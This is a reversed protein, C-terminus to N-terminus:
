NRFGDAQKRTSIQDQLVQKVIASVDDTGKLLGFDQFQQLLELTNSPANQIAEDKALLTGTQDVQIGLQKNLQNIGEQRKAFFETQDQFNQLEAGGLVDPAQLNNVDGTYTNILNTEALARNKAKALRLQQERPDDAFEKTIREFELQSSRASEALQQANELKALQTLNPATSGAGIGRIQAPLGFRGTQRTAQASSSRDINEFANGPKINELADQSVLGLRQRLGRQAAAVNDNVTNRANEIRQDEDRLNAQVSENFGGASAADRRRQLLEEVQAARDEEVTFDPPPNDYPSTNPVNSEEVFAFGAGPDLNQDALTADLQANAANFGLPDATPDAIGLRALTADLQANAANVGLPDAPPAQPTAPPEVGAVGAAFDVVPNRGSLGSNIEDIAAENRQDAASLAGALSSGVNRVTDVAGRGADIVDRGRNVITDIVPDAANAVGERLSAGADFAQSSAPIEVAGAPLGTDASRVTDLPQESFTVQPIEPLAAQIQPATSPPLPQPAEAITIPEANATDSWRTAVRNNLGQENGKGSGALYKKFNTPIAETQIQAMAAGFERSNTPNTALARKVHGKTLNTNMQVVSDAIGNIVTADNLLEPPAGAEKLLNQAPKFVEKEHYELQKNLLLDPQVSAAQRWQAAFEDTGPEATLGLEKGYRAKFTHASNGPLSNLGLFGYSHSGNTDTTIVQDQKSFDRVGTEGLAALRASEIASPSAKAAAVPPTYTPQASTRPIYPTVQTANAAFAQEDIPTGGAVGQAITAAITPNRAALASRALSNAAGSYDRSAAASWFETPIEQESSTFLTHTLAQNFIEPADQVGNKRALTRAQKSSAELDVALWSYGQRESMGSNQWRQLRALQKADMDAEAGLKHGYGIYWEGDTKQYPFFKDNNEALGFAANQEAVGGELGVITDATETNVGKPLRKYLYNIDLM